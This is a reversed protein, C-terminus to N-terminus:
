EKNLAVLRTLIEEDSLSEPWGYAQFVLRDLREHLEKLILILGEDKIREEDPTLAASSKAIGPSASPLGCRAAELKELFEEAVTRIEGQSTRASGPVPLSRLM